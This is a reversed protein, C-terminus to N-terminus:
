QAIHVAKNGFATRHSGVRVLDFERGEGVAVFGVANDFGDGLAGFCAANPCFNSALDLRNQSDPAAAYAAGTLNMLKVFKWVASRFILRLAAPANNIKKILQDTTGMANTTSCVSTQEISHQTASPCQQQAAFFSQTSPWSWPPMRSIPVASSSVAQGQGTVGGDLTLVRDRWVTRTSECSRVFSDARWGIRCM